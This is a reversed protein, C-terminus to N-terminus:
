MQSIRNIISTIEFKDNVGFTWKLFTGSWFPYPNVNYHTNFKLLQNSGSVIRFTGKTRIALESLIYLGQGRGGSTVGLKLSRRLADENGIGQYTKELSKQIGCGADVVIIDLESRSPYKQLHMYGGNQSLSHMAINSILEYFIIILTESEDNSLGMHSKLIDNVEYTLGYSNPPIHTIEIFNGNKPNRTFTEQFDVGISKFFDIRSAYNIIDYIKEPEFCVEVYKGKSKLENILTTLLLYGDPKIFKSNEFSINFKYKDFEFSIDKIQYLIWYLSNSFRFVIKREFVKEM